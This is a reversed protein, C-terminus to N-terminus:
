AAAEATLQPQRDRAYWDLLESHRFELQKNRDSPSLARGPWVPWPSGQRRDASPCAATTAALWLEKRPLLYQRSTLECAFEFRADGDCPGDQDEDPMQHGVEFPAVVVLSGFVEVSIAVTRSAGVVV